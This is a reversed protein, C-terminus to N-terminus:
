EDEKCFKSQIVTIQFENGDPLRIVLGKDRTLLGAEQFTQIRSEETLEEELLTRLLEVMQFKDM